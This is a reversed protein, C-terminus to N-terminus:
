HIISSAIILIIITANLIPFAILFKDIVNYKKSKKLLSKISFILGIWVPFTFVLVGLVNGLMVMAASMKWLLFITGVLYIGNIIGFIRGAITM